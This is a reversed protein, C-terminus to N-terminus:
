PVFVLSLIKQDRVQRTGQLTMRSEQEKIRSGKEKHRTEQSIEEENDQM